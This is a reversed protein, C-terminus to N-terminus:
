AELAELTMALLDLEEIKPPSTVCTQARVGAAIFARLGDRVDGVYCTDIM